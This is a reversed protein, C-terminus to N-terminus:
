PAPSGAIEGARELPSAVAQIPLRPTDPLAADECDTTPNGARAVITLRGPVERGGM